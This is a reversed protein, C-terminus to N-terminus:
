VELIQELRGRDFGVVIEPEGEAYQIETVPVGMQGTRQFMNEAEKENMDVYVVEHKINKEELWSKEMKCYPCSTTSYLKINIPKLAEVGAAEHILNKIVTDAKAAVEALKPNQTLAKLIATQGTGVLVDDGKKIISVACPLFGVLNYDTELIQKHWDRSCVLVTKGTDDPLDVEGLIKLGYKEAQNKLQDATEAVTHNSKRFYSLNM